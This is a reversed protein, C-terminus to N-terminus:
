RYSDHAQRRIGKTVTNWSTVASLRTTGTFVIGLIRVTPQYPIEMEPTDSSWGGLALACSKHFNIVAGSARKYM